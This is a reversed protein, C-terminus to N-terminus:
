KAHTSEAALEARTAAIRAKLGPDNPALKSQIEELVAIEKAYDKRM